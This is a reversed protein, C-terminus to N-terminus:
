WAGRLPVKYSSPHEAPPTDAVATSRKGNGTLKHPIYEELV